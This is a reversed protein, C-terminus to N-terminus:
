QNDEIDGIGKERQGDEALLFEDSKLKLASWGGFGDEFWVVVGELLTGADLTSKGRTIEKLGEFTFADHHYRWAANGFRSFVGPGSYYAAIGMLPPSGLGLEAARMSETGQSATYKM